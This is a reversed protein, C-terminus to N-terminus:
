EWNTWFCHPGFPNPFCICTGPPTPDTPNNPDVPPLKGDCDGVESCPGSCTDDYAVVTRAYVVNAGMTIIGATLVLLLKRTSM